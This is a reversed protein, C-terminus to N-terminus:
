CNRSPLFNFIQKEKGLGVCAIGGSQGAGPWGVNPVNLSILCLKRLWLGSSEGPSPFRIWEPIILNYGEESDEKRLPVRAMLGPSPFNPTPEWDLPTRPTNHSPSWGHLFLLYQTDVTISPGGRLFGDQTLIGVQTCGHKCWVNSMAANNIVFFFQFSRSILHYSIASHQDMGILYHRTPMLDHQLIRDM